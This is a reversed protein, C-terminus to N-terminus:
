PDQGGARTPWRSRRTLQSPYLAEAGSAEPDSPLPGLADHTPPSFGSSSHPSCFQRGSRAKPRVFHGRTPSAMDTCGCAFLFNQLFMWPQASPTFAVPIPSQTGQFYNNCTLCTSPSPHRTWGFARDKSVLPYCCGPEAILVWESVLGM